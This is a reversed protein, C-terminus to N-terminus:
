WSSYSLSTCNPISDFAAVAKEIFNPCPDVDDPLFIFHSYKDQVAKCYNFIDQWTKWYGAKGRHEPSKIFKFIPTNREEFDSCDDFVVFDVNFSEAMIHSVLNCLSEQRNYSTIAVLVRPQEM